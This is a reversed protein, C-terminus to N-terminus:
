DAQRRLFAPIACGSFEDDLSPALAEGLDDKLSAIKANESKRTKDKDKTEEFFKQLDEEFLSIVRRQADECKDLYAYVIEMLEDTELDGIHEIEVCDSRNAHYTLLYELTHKPNDMFDDSSSKKLDKMNLLIRPKKKLM